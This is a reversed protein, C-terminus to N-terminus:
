KWTRSTVISLELSGINKNQYRHKNFLYNMLSSMFVNDQGMIIYDPLWHKKIVYDILADGIEESKSQHIPVTILYNTIEGKICLIYKHGENSRPMVKLDISLRSFPKYNLNIRTQVQRTPPKGNRSIQCYSM